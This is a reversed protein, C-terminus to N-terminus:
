VGIVVQCFVRGKLLSEPAMYSPQILVNRVANSLRFPISSPGLPDGHDCLPCRRFRAISEASALGRV